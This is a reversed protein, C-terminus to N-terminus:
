KNSRKRKKSSTKRRKKRKSKKVKSFDLSRVSTVRSLMKIVGQHRLHRALGLATKGDSNRIDPDVGASIFYQVLQWHGYRAAIHLPTWNKDTTKSPNLGNKVLIKAVDIMGHASATHLLTVGKAGKENIDAGHELLDIVMSAWGRSVAIGLPTEGKLNKYNPRVGMRLLQKVRAVRGAEMDELLEQELVPNNVYKRKIAKKQPKSEKPAVTNTTTAKPKNLRSSTKPNLLQQIVDQPIPQGKSDSLISHQKAHVNSFSLLLISYLTLHHLQRLLSIYRIM